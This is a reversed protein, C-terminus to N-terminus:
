GGLWRSQNTWWNSGSIDPDQPHLVTFDNFTTYSYTVTVNGGGADGGGYNISALKNKTGLYIRTGECTAVRITQNSLNDVVGGPACPDESTSCGDALANVLDGSLSLVEIDCTVEVPFTVVRAYPQKTGLEFLEERGLDTSVSISQLHAVNDPNRPNMWGNGDVGPIDTPLRTYATGGANSATTANFALNERRNIGGTGIPEDAVESNFAGVTMSDLFWGPTACGRAQTAAHGEAAWAKNNGVLTLDESFNDELPFNYSVSSAFMGSAEMIQQPRGTAADVTDPWVGLSVVCNRNSRGALTPSKDVEGAFTGHTALHYLLPYGDLVKSCTVEIDPVGEINEYIALQGLEFAQELSFTTTVAVSQVGHATLLNGASTGDPKFAVQQNAFYVRNAM